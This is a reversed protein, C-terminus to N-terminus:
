EPPEPAPQFPLLPLPALDPACWGFRAEVSFLRDRSFFRLPWGRRGEPSGLLANVKAALSWDTPTRALFLRVGHIFCM